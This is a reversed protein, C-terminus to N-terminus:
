GRRPREAACHPVVNTASPAATKAVRRFPFRSCTGSVQAHQATRTALRFPQCNRIPTLCRISRSSTIGAAENWAQGQFPRPRSLHLLICIHRPCTVSRAVLALSHM